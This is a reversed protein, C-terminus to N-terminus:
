SRRTENVVDVKGVEKKGRKFRKRTYNKAIQRGETLNKEFILKKDLTTSLKLFCIQCIINFDKQKDLKLSTIREVVQGFNTMLRGEKWLLRRRGPSIKKHCNLCINFSSVSFFLMEKQPTHEKSSCAAM